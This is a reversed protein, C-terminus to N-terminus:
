EPPMPRIVQRKKLGGLYYNVTGLFKWCGLNNRCPPILLGFHLFGCKLLAFPALFTYVVSAWTVLFHFVVPLFISVIKPLFDFVIPLRIPAWQLIMATKSPEYIPTHSMLFATKSWHRFTSVVMEIMLRESAPNGETLHNSSRERLERVSQFITELQAALPAVIANIRRNVEISYMGRDLPQSKLNDGGESASEGSHHVHGVEVSQRTPTRNKESISNQSSPM